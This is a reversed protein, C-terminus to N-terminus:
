QRILEEYKLDSSLRETGNNTNRMILDIPRYALSWRRIEGLWTGKFFYFSRSHNEYYSSM